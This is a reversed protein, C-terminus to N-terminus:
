NTREPQRPQRPFITRKERFFDTQVTASQIFLFERSSDRMANRPAIARDIKRRYIYIYIYTHLYTYINMYKTYIYTNIYTYAHLSFTYASTVCVGTATGKSIGRLAVRVRRKEGGIARANGHPFSSEGVLSVGRAVRRGNEVGSSRESRRARPWVSQGDPDRAEEEGGVSKRGRRKDTWGGTGREDRQSAGRETGDGRSHPM